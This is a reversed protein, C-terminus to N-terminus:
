RADAVRRIKNEGKRVREEWVELMLAGDMGRIIIIIFRGWFGGNPIGERGAACFAETGGIVHLWAGGKRGEERGEGGGGGLMVSVSIPVM